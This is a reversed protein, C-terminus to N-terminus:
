RKAEAHCIRVTHLSASLPSPQEECIPAKRSQVVAAFCNRRAILMLAFEYTSSTADRKLEFGSDLHPLSIGDFIEIHARSM